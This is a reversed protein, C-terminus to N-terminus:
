LRTQSAFNGFATDDSGGKGNEHGLYSLILWYDGYAFLNTLLLPTHNDFFSM